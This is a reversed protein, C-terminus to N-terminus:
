QTGAVGFKKQLTDFASQLLDDIKDCNAAEWRQVLEEVQAEMKDAWAQAGLWDQYPRDIEEESFMLHERCEKETWKNSRMCSSMSEEIHLWKAKAANEDHEADRLKRLAGEADSKYEGCAHLQENRYDQFAEIVNMTENREGLQRICEECFESSDGHVLLSFVCNTKEQKTCAQTSQMSENVSTESSNALQSTTWFLKAQDAEYLVAFSMILCDSFVYLFYTHIAM